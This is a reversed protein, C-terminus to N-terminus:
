RQKIGTLEQCRQEEIDMVEIGGRGNGEDDQLIWLIKKNELVLGPVVCHDFTEVDYVTGVIELGILPTLEREFAEWESQQTKSLEAM